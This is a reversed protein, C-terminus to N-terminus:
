KKRLGLKRLEKKVINSEKKFDPKNDKDRSMKEDMDTTGLTEKDLRVKNNEMLCLECYRPPRGRGTYEGIYKGCRKCDM